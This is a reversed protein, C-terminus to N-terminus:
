YRTLLAGELSNVKILIGSVNMEAREGVGNRVNKTKMRKRM